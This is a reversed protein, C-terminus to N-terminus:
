IPGGKASWSGTPDAALRPWTAALERFEREGLANRRAPHDIVVMAVHPAVAEVRIPM